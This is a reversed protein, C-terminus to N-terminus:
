SQALVVEFPIGLRALLPASPIRWHAGSSGPPRPLTPIIGAECDDRVSRDTKGLLLSAEVPGIVIDWDGAVTRVVMAQHTRTSRSESDSKKV